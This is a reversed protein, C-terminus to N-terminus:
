KLSSACSASNFSQTKNADEEPHDPFPFADPHKKLELLFVLALSNKKKWKIFSTTKHKFQQSVYNRCFPDAVLKEWNNRYLQTHQQKCASQMPLTIDCTIKANLTSAAHLGSCNCVSSVSWTVHKQEFVPFFESLPFVCVFCWKM